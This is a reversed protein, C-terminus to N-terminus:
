RGQKVTREISNNIVLFNGQNPRATASLHCRPCSPAAPLFKSTEGVFDSDITKFTVM